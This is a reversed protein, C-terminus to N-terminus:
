LEKTCVRTGTRFFIMSEWAKSKDHPKPVPLDHSIRYSKRMIKWSFDHSILHSRMVERSEYHSITDAQYNRWWKQNTVLLWSYDSSTKILWTEYRSTMLLWFVDHYTMNRLSFDHSKLLVWSLTLYIMCFWSLMPYILLLRSKDHSYYSIMILWSFNHVEQASVPRIMFFLSHVHNTMIHTNSKVFTYLRLSFMINWHIPVM